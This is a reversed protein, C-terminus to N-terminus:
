ASTTPVEEAKKEVAPAPEMSDKPAEAVPATEKVEEKANNPNGTAKPQSIHLVLPCHDSGMVYPRRYVDGLNEVIRQSMVFYDLRWGINQARANKAYSWFTYAGEETPYLHRFADVFEYKLVKTFNEREQDSFGASKNKNQKPNKLDIELHAVNLDGCWIVPKVTDLKRLYSTFEADWKMRYDLDKLGRGSNPIYTNVLYFNEYEAVLLRGEGDHDTIGMGEHYKIPKVKSFIGVGSYGKKEGIYFHHDYGEINTVSAPDIKTEQICIIDPNENKLYEQFGKTQIAKFGAVNWSVIKLQGEKLAPSSFDTKPIEVEEKSEAPAAAVVPKSKQRKPQTRSKKSEDQPPLEMMEEGSNDSASMEDESDQKKSKRKGKPM